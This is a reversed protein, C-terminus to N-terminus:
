SCACNLILISSKNHQNYIDFPNLRVFVNTWVHMCLLDQHVCSRTVDVVNADLYINKKIEGCFCINHTSVPIM